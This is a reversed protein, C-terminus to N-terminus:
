MATTGAGTCQTATIWLAPGEGSLTNTNTTAPFGFRCGYCYEVSNLLCGADSCNADCVTTLTSCDKAGDGLRNFGVCNAANISATMGDQM